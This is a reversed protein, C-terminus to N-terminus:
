ARGVKGAAEMAARVEALHEDHDYREATADETHGLIRKRTEIGVGAGALRTAATHRLSHFTFGKGELGAAKLVESFQMTLGHSKQSREYLEAHAPFLFDGRRPLKELVERMPAIIPFAVQIGHRRTKIPTSRLIDGDIQQWTLMAVDGYRLGTHLAIVVVPEWDKGVKRAAALVREIQESNFAKGREGDDVTPALNAWPNRIEGSAKELMRWVTSLNGIINKRTKSKNGGRQLHAAFAAAVPPTVAEVTTVTAAEAKAWEVFARFHSARMRMTSRALQDRGVSKAVELYIEWAGDLPLVGQRPKNYLMRLVEVADEFTPMKKAVKISDAFSQAVKRNTTHCSQRHRVGGSMFEIWWVNGRKYITM